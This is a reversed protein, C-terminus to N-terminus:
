NSKKSTNSAVYVENNRLYKNIRGVVDQVPENLGTEYVSRLEDKARGLKDGNYIDGEELFHLARELSKRIGPM